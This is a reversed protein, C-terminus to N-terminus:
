TPSWGKGVNVQGYIDPGVQKNLTSLKQIELDLPSIDRIKNEMEMLNRTGDASFSVNYEQCIYQALAYRLYTLYNLEYTLSLDTQLTPISTLGFKGWLKFLYTDEPLFYVYLDSGNLRREFHYSYPLSNIGDARPAGFYTDRNQEYMSYRVQGIYFVITEIDLLGDIQYKQQGIVGNFTYEQFFPILGMDLTKIALLENLFELGESIQDADPTDLGKSVVGSLYLARSILKQATYSM